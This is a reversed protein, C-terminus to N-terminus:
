VNVRPLHYFNSVIFYKSIKNKKVYKKIAIINGATSTTSQLYGVQEPNIRFDHILMECIAWGRNILPMEKSYRQEDGGVVILKKTINYKVLNAFAELRIDAFLEKNSSLDRRAPRYRSKNVQDKEIDFALGFVVENAILKHEM